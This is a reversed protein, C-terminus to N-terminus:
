LGLRIRRGRNRIYAYFSKSNNKINEALKKEFNQQVTKNARNATNLKHTYQSYSEDNKLIRYKKWAKEKARRCKTTERTGWKCKSQVVKKVPIHETKLQDLTREAKGLSQRNEAKMAWTETGYTLVSQVCARFIKGKMHYFAGCATLIPSLEKFKAWACRVRARAAEDAGRGACTHQGSLLVQTCM